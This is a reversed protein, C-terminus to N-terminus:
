PLSVFWGTRDHFYGDLGLLIVHFGRDLMENYARDPAWHEHVVRHLGVILGTRDQGHQCHVLVPQNDPNVLAALIENVQHDEPAWFGSLPQSIENLGLQRAWALEDTLAEEDNDLNIITKIGFRARLEALNELDPRASRFIGPSVELFKDPLRGGFAPASLLLLSLLLIKM